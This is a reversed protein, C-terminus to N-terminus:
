IYFSWRRQLEIIEANNPNGFEKEGMSFIMESLPRKRESLQQKKLM